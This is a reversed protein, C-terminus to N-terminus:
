YIRIYWFPPTENFVEGKVYIYTEDLYGHLKVQKKLKAISGILQPCIIFIQKIIDIRHLLM